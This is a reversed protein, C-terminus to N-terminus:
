PNKPKSPKGSIDQAVTTGANYTVTVKDGFQYGGSQILALMRSKVKPAYTFSMVDKPNQASRVTITASNVSVVEGKFKLTKPKPQSPQPAQPAASAIQMANQACAPAAGLLACVGFSAACVSLAAFKLSRFENRM